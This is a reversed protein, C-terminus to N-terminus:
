AGDDDQLANLADRMKKFKSRVREVDGCKDYFERVEGETFRYDNAIDQLAKDM